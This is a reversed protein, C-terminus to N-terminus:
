TDVETFEVWLALKEVIWKIFFGVLILMTDLSPTIM